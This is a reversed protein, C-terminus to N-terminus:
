LYKLWWHRHTAKFRSFWLCLPYLMAVVAIWVLYVTRLRFGFDPPFLHEPGGMSPVPHFIFGFTANGYRAWSFVVLCAHILFLHSVFYFFPVRGFVVPLNHAGFRLRDLMSFVMLAPGLTMLLFDLSAPYKTCNFFSLLGPVRPSPDGYGNLARLVFFTSTVMVGLRFITKRRHAPDLLFAQGFCFGAAMVALWPLIPYSVLVTTGALRFVGSRHLFLWVPISVRDLCNHLVIAAVSLAALVSLRLWILGSMIIMCIGFIWLVLLLVTNNRSLDFNYSFQMVTLELLVFWIGRTFLFLALTSKDRQNRNWWLFAGIGATFVFVPMCFHTIWRTWFIPITTRSLDTPSFLMAGRHFFDRVHDLAMLIMVTGRLADLSQLREAPEMVSSAAQPELTRSPSRTFAM